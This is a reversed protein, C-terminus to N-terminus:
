NRSTKLPQGAISQIVNSASHLSMTIAVVPMILWLWFKQVQLTLTPELYIFNFTASKFAHVDFGTNVLMLPDYWLWSCLLLGLASMLVLVDVLNKNFRLASAPLVENLLQVAVATRLKVSISAGIFAAWIMLYIALEDAWYLAWGLSRCVLNLLIVAFVGAILTGMIPREIRVIRDSIGVLMRWPQPLRAFPMQEKTDRGPSETLAM